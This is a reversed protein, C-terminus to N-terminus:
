RKTEPEYFHMWTEDARVGEATLFEIVALQKLRASSHETGAKMEYVIGVNSRLVTVIRWSLHYFLDRLVHELKDRMLPAM